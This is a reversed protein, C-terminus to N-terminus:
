IQPIGTVELIWQEHYITNVYVNPAFDDCGRLGWSTVGYQKFVGNEAKCVMPGGSDGNCAPMFPLQHSVCVADYGVSDVSEAIFQMLEVCRSNPVIDVRVERLNWDTQVQIYDENQNGFGTVYCEAEQGQAIVAQFSETNGLCIPRTFNDANPEYQLELLALDNGEVFTVYNPHHHVRVVPIEQGYEGLEASKVAGFWVAYEGYSDVCHEATLAWKGGIWTLGCYHGGYYRLSGQWPFEGPLVDDGHIIMPRVFDELYVPSGCDPIQCDLILPYCSSPEGVIAIGPLVSPESTPTVRIGDTITRFGHRIGDANLSGKGAMNCFTDAMERDVDNYCVPLQHGNYTLSVSDEEVLSCRYEDTGDSCDKHGDCRQSIEVCQHNMCEFKGQMRCTQCNLGDCEDVTRTCRSDDSDVDCYCELEDSNGPCEPLADCFNVAPVCIDDTGSCLRKGSFCAGNSCRVGLFRNCSYAQTTSCTGNRCSLEVNSGGHSVGVEYLEANGVYGQFECIVNALEFDMEDSSPYCVSRWVGDLYYRLEGYSGDGGALDMDGDPRSDCDLEDSGDLCDSGGDCVYTAPICVGNSACSFSRDSCRQQIPCPGPTYSIDDVSVSGPYAKITEAVIGTFNVYVEANGRVPVAGQVWADFTRDVLDYWLLEIEGATYALSVFLQATLGNPQVITGNLYYWFTICGDQEFEQPPSYMDRKTFSQMHAENWYALHAFHGENTGESHDYAPIQHMYGQRRGWIGSPNGIVDLPNYINYGCALAEEFDCSILSVEGCNDVSEDTGDICYNTRDCKKDDNFCKSGDNCKHPASEPCELDTSNCMGPQLEIGDIAIFPHAEDVSGIFDSLSTTLSIIWNGEGILMQGHRWQGPALNVYTDLWRSTNTVGVGDVNRVASVSLLNLSGGYTFRLCSTVDVEFEVSTLSRYELSRSIYSTTIMAGDGSELTYQEGNQEYTKSSVVSWTTSSDRLDTYGCTTNIFGCTVSFGCNDEDEGSFCDKTRDCRRSEPLCQEECGFQCELDQCIGAYFDVNEIKVSSKESVFTLRTLGDANIQGAIGNGPDNYYFSRGESIGSSYDTEVYLMDSEVASFTFSICHPGGPANFANLPAHLMGITNTYIAGGDINWNGGDIIYGCRDDDFSCSVSSVPCDGELVRMNDIAIDGFESSGRSANFYIEGNFGDPLEYCESTYWIDADVGQISSVAGLGTTSDRIFTQLSGVGEGYMHYTFMYKISTTELPFVVNFWALSWHGTDGLSNDVYLYHGTHSGDADVSPGTGPTSTDGFHRTWIFGSGVTCNALYNCDYSNDFTCVSLDQLGRACENREMIVDDINLHGRSDYYPGRKTVTFELDAHQYVHMPSETNWNIPIKYTNWDDDDIAYYEVNNYYSVEGSLTLKVDLTFYANEFARNLYRFSICNYRGKIDEVPFAELIMTGTDGETAGYGTAIVFHGTNRWAIGYYTNNTFTFNCNEFTEFDCSNPHPCETDELEINDLFIHGNATGAVLVFSVNRFMTQQPIEVCVHEFSAISANNAFIENKGAYVKLFLDNGDMGVVSQALDFNLYMDSAYEGAELTIPYEVDQEANRSDGTLVGNNISWVSPENVDQNLCLADLNGCASPDNFDCVSEPFAAPCRDSSLTVENLEFFPSRGVGTYTSSGNYFKFALQVRSGVHENPLSVCTEYAGYINPYIVFWLSVDVDDDTQLSFHISQGPSAFSYSITVSDGATYTFWPSWVTGNEANAGVLRISGYTFAFVSASYTYGCNNNTFNCSVSPLSCTVAQFPTGRCACSSCSDVWTITCSSGFCNFYSVAGADEGNGTAYAYNSYSVYSGYGAKRCITEAEDAYIYYCLYGRYGDSRTFYVLGAGPTNGDLSIEYTFSQAPVYYIEFVYEATFRIESEVVINNEFTYTSVDDTQCVQTLNTSDGSKVTVCGSEIWTFSINMRVNSSVNKIWIEHNFIWKSCENTQVSTNYVHTENIDSHVIMDCVGDEFVSKVTLHFGGPSDSLSVLTVNVAESSQIGMLGSPTTPCYKVGDVELYYSSCDLESLVMSINMVLRKGFAPYFKYACPSDAPGNPYNMSWFEVDEEDVNMEAGCGIWVPTCNDSFPSYKCYHEIDSNANNVIRLSSQCLTSVMQCHDRCVPIADGNRCPTGHLVCALEMLAKDCADQQFATYNEYLYTLREHSMELDLSGTNSPFNVRSHGFRSCVNSGIGYCGDDEIFLRVSERPWLSEAYGLVDVLCMFTDSADDEDIDYITLTYSISPTDQLAVHFKSLAFDGIVIDAMIDDNRSITGYKDSRWFMIVELQEPNNVRCNLSVTGGFSSPEPSTVSVSPFSAPITTPAAPSTTTSSGESCYMEDSRDMCEFTSNCYAGVPVCEFSYTCQFYNPPCAQTPTRNWLTTPLPVTTHTPTTTEEYCNMEDSRDMCEFTSNCYAGDPVCEFYYTCQFYNPPCAQTPTRNWLTTPLPVTTHTPTTTETDNCPNQVVTINNVAREFYSARLLKDQVEFLVGDYSGAPIDVGFKQIRYMNENVDKALQTVFTNNHLTAVRIVLPGETAFSFMLCSDSAATFAPSLMYGMPALFSAAIGYEGGMIYMSSTSRLEVNVFTYQCNGREFSCELSSGCVEDSEDACDAIGDCVLRFHVCSSNDRCQFMEPNRCDCNKEDRGDRCDRNGDCFRYEAICHGDCFTEQPGCSLGPQQCKGETLEVSLVRLQRGTYYVRAEVMFVMAQSHGIDISVNRQINYNLYFVPTSSITNEFSDKLQLIIEGGTYITMISLTLCSDDPPTFTPSILPNGFSVTSTTFGNETLSWIDPNRRYGCNGGQIFQCEVSGTHSECAHESVRINDVGASVALASFTVELDGTFGCIDSCHGTWYNLSFGDSRFLLRDNVALVLRGNQETNSADLYSSINKILYEFHLSCLRKGPSQTAVMTLNSADNEQLDVFPPFTVVMSTGNNTQWDNALQWEYVHSCSSGGRTVEYVCRDDEFTCMTRDLTVECLGKYLQFDSVATRATFNGGFATLGMTINGVLGSPMNICYQRQITAKRTLKDLIFTEGNEMNMTWVQLLDSATKIYKFMFFFDGGPNFFSESRLTAWGGTEYSAPKLAFFPKPLSTQFVDDSRNGYCRLGAYDNYDCYPSYSTDRWPCDFLSDETSDCLLGKLHYTNNYGYPAYNFMATGYGGSFGLMRCAVTADNSGWSYDCVAGWVGDLYVEVLGENSASGNSLRIGREEDPVSDSEGVGIFNWQISEDNSSMFWGCQIDEDDCAIVHPCQPLLSVKDVAIDASLNSGRLATFTIKIPASSDIGSPMTVCSENWDQNFSAEAMWITVSDKGDGSISLELSGGPNIYEFNLANNPGFHPLNFSMRAQDGVNGHSSDALMFNGDSQFRYSETADTTTVWQWAYHPTRRECTPCEVVLGCTSPWEFDCMNDLLTETCKGSTVRVDDLVVLSRVHPGRNGYFVLSRNKHINSLPLNVCQYLWRGDEETRLYQSNWLKIENEFTSDDEDREQLAFVLDNYSSDRLYYYFEVMMDTDSEHLFSPSELRSSDSEKGSSEFLMLFGSSGNRSYVSSYGSRMIQWNVQGSIASAEYSCNDNDFTCNVSPVAPESRCPGDCRIYQDEQHGCNHNGWGRHPCDWLYAEYGYCGLDDLWIPGSGIVSVSDWNSSAGSFGLSRCAVNADVSGFSDDCVTGWVGNYSVELRGESCSPGDVLRIGYETVSWTTTRITSSITTDPRSQTTTSFVNFGCSISVDQEHSCHHKGWLQHACEALNAETGLCHVNSLRIAYGTTFSLGHSFYAESEDGFGLMRCTVRAERTDFSDVCVTGYEEDIGQRRVMLTGWMPATSLSNASENGSGGMLVVEFPIYPRPTPAPCQIWEDTGDDCDKKGDCRVSANVCQHKKTCLWEWEECVLPCFKEDSLDACDVISDCHQTTNYCGSGDHCRWNSGCGCGQEDSSDRCSSFGDCVNYDPICQEYFRSCSVTGDCDCAHEDSNDFCDPVNDCLRHLEICSGADCPFFGSPCPEVRISQGVYSAVFGNTTVSGDSTFRVTLYRGAGCVTFKSLRGSFRGLSTYTTSPGNYVDVYDCCSETEFVDFTLCARHEVPVTIYYLCNASDQYNSPYGPSSIRGSTGNFYGGCSGFSPTTTWDTRWDTTRPSTTTSVNQQICRSYAFNAQFGPASGEGRTFLAVTVNQTPIYINQDYIPTIYGFLYISIQPSFIYLADSSYLHIMDFSLMICFGPPMTINWFCTQSSASYNQPYHPTAFTGFLDFLYTQGCTNNEPATTPSTPPMETTVFRPEIHTFNVLQLIGFTRQREAIIWRLNEGSWSAYHLRLSSMFGTNAYENNFGTANTSNYVPYFYDVSYDCFGMDNFLSLGMLTTLNDDLMRDMDMYYQSSTDYLSNDFTVKVVGQVMYRGNCHPTTTTSQNSVPTTPYRGDSTTSYRGDTTTSYRVDTTTPYRGDPTTTTNRVAQTTRTTGNQLEITTVNVTPLIGFARQRETIYMGIYQGPYYNFQVLLTSTFGTYGVTSEHSLGSTNTANYVPYFNDVSYNCFGMENAPSMMLTTFNDELMRDMDVYYQSSPDYLSDNFPVSMVGQVMYRGICPLTPTRSTGAPSTTTTNRGAPSTTTNRGASSTTSATTVSSPWVTTSPTPIVNECHQGEYGNDCLCVYSGVTNWCSYSNICPMRSCEDVDNLCDQGEYGALCRCEYSGGTNTCSAGNGCPQQLCEDIDLECLNGSYGPMCTCRYSNLLDECTGGNRCVFPFCDNIDKDCDMGTYGLECVCAYSGVLDLCTGHVCPNGACENINTQCVNGSYGAACTCVYGNIKDTCRGGHICPNPSCEDIDKDCDMGTYGPDCFCAYSDVLDVCTGHVCPNGACENIDTQCENGSYGAACTCVYGNIQDTCRGEHLCPNPSCEDIDLECQNGSYGSMCTCRYNNLLDECTGGNRCVSPSCDNINTECHDGGYGILCSCTYMNVGDVCTGGNECVVGDCENIDTQCENGSYGAACTCMFGNIRDTCRGEHLCPNPSCEDIDLECQNGSYGPMCTCRYNNLLDDCTGGNRCVSPSCDNINTECHDGGYGILCSCTYKNVGDVCTGGNECVVGDCENIDTQCENGSYGAACTCMYGNIRDTCRGEHLCPNPSCEDIDLECQNGSYGPMCTCRYNNLLDDCTGGNRCVSPSCDNINTECHDGGYGILCSCTYKNVGDVCTGGNECVVGDCENIDTQCENGSYGAACTCMYGNIRDTCRGEHLCPNPSCEDIDLECQNGSYGPMCTCRYNNLLDECTGGNRCVSPSCDNIDTQCENGSYGAACTCMYGNIRDTCRGEHLCPNPSCEDIDTDCHRGTFGDACACQYANVLDQCTGGNRCIVSECDDIDIECHEGTYGSTCTCTYGAVQDNCTGDNGCPDSACENIDTECNDGKYGPACSCMYRNAMDRCTGGHLCPSSTCEDVNSFPEARIGPIGQVEQAIENPDIGFETDSVVVSPTTVNEAQQNGQNGKPVKVMKKMIISIEAKVSGNRYENVRTNNYLPNSKFKADFKEILERTTDQYVQSDPNLYDESFQKGELTIEGQYERVVEVEVYQIEENRSDDGGTASAVVAAIIAGVLLTAIVCVAVVMYLRKRSRKTHSDQSSADSSAGQFPNYPQAFEGFGAPYRMVHCYQPDSYGPNGYYGDAPYQGYGTRHVQRNKKGM